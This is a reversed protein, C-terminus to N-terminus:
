QFLQINSNAYAIKSILLGLNAIALLLQLVGTVTEFIRPSIPLPSCSRICIALLNSVILLSIALEIAVFSIQLINGTKGYCMPNDATIQSGYQVIIFIGWAVMVLSVLLNSVNIVVNTASVALEKKDVRESAVTSMSQVVIVTQNISLFTALFISILRKIRKEDNVLEGISLLFCWFFWGKKFRHFLSLLFSLFASIDFDAVIDSCIV